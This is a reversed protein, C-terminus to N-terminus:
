RVCAPLAADSRKRAGESDCTRAARASGASDRAAAGPGSAPDGSCYRRRPRPPPAPAQHLIAASIVASTAGTFAPRGTAMEYLVLGFSFLDSRADISEGRLQEPSM